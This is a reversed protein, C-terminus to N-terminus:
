RVKIFDSEEVKIWDPIKENESFEKIKILPIFLKINEETLGNFIKYNILKNLQKSM